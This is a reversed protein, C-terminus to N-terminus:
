GQAVPLQSVTKTHASPLRSGVEPPDVFRSNLLALAGDAQQQAFSAREVDKENIWAKSRVLYRIVREFELGLPITSSGSLAAPKDLCYAKYALIAAPVPYLGITIQHTSTASNIYWDTPVGSTGLDKSRRVLDEITTQALEGGGSPIEIIRIEAVEASLSYLRTHAISTVTRESNSSHWRGSAVIEEIAEVGWLDWQAKVASDGSYDEGFEDASIACLAAVTTM